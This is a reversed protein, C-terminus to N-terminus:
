QGWFAKSTWNVQHEEMVRRTLAEARGDAFGVNIQDEEHVWEHERNRNGRYRHVFYNQTRRNRAFHVAESNQHYSRPFGPPPLGSRDRTADFFFGAGSPDPIRHIFNPARLAVARRPWYGWNDPQNRRLSTSGALHFNISYTKGYATMIGFSVPGPFHGASPCTLVSEFFADEIRSRSIPYPLDLYTVMSHGAWAHMWYTSDPLQGQRDRAYLTAGAVIRRLNSRCTVSRAADGAGRLSPLLLSMLISTIAIVVLLEILTFATRRARWYASLIANM